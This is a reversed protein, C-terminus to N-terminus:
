IIKKIRAAAPEDFGDPLLRLAHLRAQVGEGYNKVKGDYHRNEDAQVELLGFLQLTKHAEYADRGIGYHLLRCGSPIKVSKGTGLPPSAHAVMMLFALETDELLHIWGNRFLGVPLDFTVDTTKPVLYDPVDGDARVGGEDCLQFAEYKGSNKEENPLRVLQVEANSLSQLATIVQRQKKSSRSASFQGARQAKVPAAILDIWGTEDGGAMLPLDNSPREGARARMQAACLAILYFRLAIGRPSFVRAAPPRHRRQPLSRDSADEPAPQSQYVFRSRVRVRKPWGRGLAGLKAVAGDIFPETVDLRGRRRVLREREKDPLAFIWLSDSFEIM